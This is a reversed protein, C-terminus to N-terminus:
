CIIAAKIITPKKVALMERTVCGKTLNIITGYTAEDFKYSSSSTASGLETSRTVIRTKTAGSADTSSVAEKKVLHIQGGMLKDAVGESNKLYWHDISNGNGKADVTFWSPEGETAFYASKSITKGGNEVTFFRTCDPTLQGAPIVGPNATSEKTFRGLYVAINQKAEEATYSQKPTVTEYRKLAIYNNPTVIRSRYRHKVQIKPEIPEEKKNKAKALMRISVYLESTDDGAVHSVVKKGGKVYAEVLDPHEKLKGNTYDIMYKAAETWPVVRAVYKIEPSGFPLDRLACIKAINAPDNFRNEEFYAKIEAPEMIIVAQVSSPASMRLGIHYTTLNDNKVKKNAFDVKENYNTIYGAVYAHKAMAEFLYKKGEPVAEQKHRLTAAVNAARKYRDDRASKDETKRKTTATPQAAGTATPKIAEAVSQTKHMLDHLNKQLDGTSNIENAM